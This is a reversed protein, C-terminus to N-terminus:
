IWTYGSGARIHSWFVGSCELSTSFDRLSTHVIEVKSSNDDPVIVISQICLLDFLIERSDLQLLSELEIISFPKKLLMITSFVIQFRNEDWHSSLIEKYMGDVGTINKVIPVLIETGSMGRWHLLSSSYVM